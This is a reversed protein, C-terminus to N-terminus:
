GWSKGGPVGSWISDPVAQAERCGGLCRASCSSLSASGGTNTTPAALNESLLTPRRLAPKPQRFPVLVHADGAGVDSLLRQVQAQDIPTFM